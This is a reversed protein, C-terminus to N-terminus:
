LKALGYWGKKISHELICIVVPHHFGLWLGSHTLWHSLLFLFVLTPSFLSLTFFFTLLVTIPPTILSHSRLSHPTLSQLFLPSYLLLSSYTTRSFSFLSTHILTLPSPSSSLQLTVTHCFSVHEQMCLEEVCGWGEMRWCSSCPLMEMKTTRPSSLLGGCRRLMPSGCGLVSRPFFQLCMHWFEESELRLMFVRSIPYLLFVLTLTFSLQSRAVMWLTCKLLSRWILVFVSLWPAVLLRNVEQRYVTFFLIFESFM